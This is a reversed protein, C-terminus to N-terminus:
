LGVAMAEQHSPLPESMSRTTSGGSAVAQATVDKQSKSAGVDDPTLLVVAYGVDAYDEFKEIITRGQNPQEHLIVATLGLKELCRAVSEKAEGDHGHVVFVKQSLLAIAGDRLAAFSRRPMEGLSTLYGAAPIDSNIIITGGERIRMANLLHLGYKIPKGDKEKVPLKLATILTQLLVETYANEDVEAKYTQGDPAVINVSIHAM